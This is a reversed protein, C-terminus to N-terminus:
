VRQERRRRDGGSGDVGSLDTEEAVAEVGAEEAARSRMCPFRQRQWVSTQWFGEKSRISLHYYPMAHQCIANEMM